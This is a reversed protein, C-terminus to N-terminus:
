SGLFRYLFELPRGHELCIRVAECGAINDYGGGPMEVVIVEDIEHHLVELVQLRRLIAEVRGSGFDNGADHQAVLLREFLYLKADANRRIRNRMRLAM